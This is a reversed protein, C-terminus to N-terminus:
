KDLSFESKFDAAFICETSGDRNVVFFKSPEPEWSSVFSNDVNISESGEDRFSLKAGLAVTKAKKGKGKTETLLEVSHIQMAHVKRQSTYMQGIYPTLCDTNIPKAEEPVTTEVEDTM